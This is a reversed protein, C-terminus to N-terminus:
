FKGTLKWALRTLVLFAANIGHPGYPEYAQLRTILGNAAFLRDISARLQENMSSTDTGKAIIPVSM